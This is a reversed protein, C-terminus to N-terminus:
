LDTYGLIATEPMIQPPMSAGGTTDGSTKIDNGGVTTASISHCACCIPTKVARTASSSALSPLFGLLEEFGGEVVCGWSLVGEEFGL